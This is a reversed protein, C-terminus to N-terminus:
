LTSAHKVRLQPGRDDKGFRSLLVPVVHPRSGPSNRPQAPPGNNTPSPPRLLEGHKSPVPPDEAGEAERWGWDAEGHRGIRVLALM